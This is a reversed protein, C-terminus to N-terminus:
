RQQFPVFSGGRHGSIYIHYRKGRGAERVIEVPLYMRLWRMDRMAADRGIKFRRGIWEM